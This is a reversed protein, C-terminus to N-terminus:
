SSALGVMEAVRGNDADEPRVAETVVWRSGSRALRLAVAGTRAGREVLVVADYRDPGSAVGRVSRLRALTARGAGTARPAGQQARCVQAYAKATMLGSLQVTPRRGCEVELYVLVFAAAVRAPETLAADARPRNSPPKSM